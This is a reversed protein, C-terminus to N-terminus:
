IEVRWKSTFSTGAKMANNYPNFSISTVSVVGSLLSQSTSLRRLTRIIRIISGCGGSGVLVLRRRKTSLSNGCSQKRTKLDSMRENWLVPHRKERGIQIM